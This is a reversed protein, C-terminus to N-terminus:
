PATPAGFIARKLEDLTRPMTLPSVPTRIADTSKVANSISGGIAVQGSVGSATWIQNIAGVLPSTLSWTVKVTIGSDTSTGTFTVAGSQAITAPVISFPITELTFSGTLTSGASTGSQALAMTFPQTGTALSCVQAAAIEGSETCSTIRYSGSWNGAYNPVSASTSSNDCAAAVLCLVLLSAFKRM